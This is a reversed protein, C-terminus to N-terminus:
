TGEKDTPIEGWERCTATIIIIIIIIIIGNVSVHQTLQTGFWCILFVNCALAVYIAVTQSMSAYDGWAQFFLIKYYCYVYSFFLIILTDKCLYQLSILNIKIFM